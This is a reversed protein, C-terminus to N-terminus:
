LSVIPWIMNASRVLAAVKPTRRRKSHDLVRCRARGSVVSGAADHGDTSHKEYLYQGVPYRRNRFFPAVGTARGSETVTKTFAINADATRAGTNVEILQTRYGGGVAVQPFIADYIVAPGSGLVRIGKPASMLFSGSIDPNCGYCGNRGFEVWGDGAMSDIRVIRQNTTDAIYIRGLRDM